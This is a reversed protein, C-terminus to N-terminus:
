APNRRTGELESRDRPGCGSATPSQAYADCDGANALGLRIVRSRRPSREKRVADALPRPWHSAPREVAPSRRREIAALDRRRVAAAHRARVHHGGAGGPFKKLKTNVATRAEKLVLFSVDDSPVRGELTGLVDQLLEAAREYDRMALSQIVLSQKIDALQVPGAIGGLARKMAEIQLAQYARVSKLDAGELSARQTEVENMLNFLYFYQQASQPKLELIRNRLATFQEGGVSMKESVGLEKAQARIYPMANQIAKRARAKDNQLVHTEALQLHGLCRLLAYEEEEGAYSLLRLARCTIAEAVEPRGAHLADQAFLFLQQGYLPFEGFLLLNIRTAEIQSALSRAMDGLDTYIISLNQHANATKLHNPGYRAITARAIGELEPRVEASLGQQSKVNALKTRLDLVVPHTEGLPRRLALLKEYLAQLKKNDLPVQAALIQRELGDAVRRQRRPPERPVKADGRHHIEDFTSDGALQLVRVAHIPANVCDVTFIAGILIDNRLLEVAGYSYRLKWDGVLEDDRLRFERTPTVQDPMLHQGPFIMSTDEEDRSPSLDIVSARISVTEKTAAAEDGCTTEPAAKENPQGSEEGPSFLDLCIATRVEEDFFLCIRTHWEGHANSSREALQFAVEGRATSPVAWAIASTEPLTYSADDHKVHQSVEIELVNEPPFAPQQAINAISETVAVYSPHTEGYLQRYTFGAKWYYFDADLPKGAAESADAIQKWCDAVRRTKHGPLNSFQQAAEKALRVSKDSERQEGAVASQRLLKLSGVYQNRQAETLKSVERVEKLDREAWKQRNRRRAGRYFEVADECVQSAKEVDGKELWLDTLQDFATAAWRSGPNRRETTVWRNAAAIAGELDGADRLEFINRLERPSRSGSFPEFPLDFDNQANGLLPVATALLFVTLLWGFPVVPKSLCAGRLRPFGM